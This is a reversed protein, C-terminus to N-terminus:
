PLSTGLRDDRVLAVTALPTSDLLEDLRARSTDQKESIRTIRTLPKTM